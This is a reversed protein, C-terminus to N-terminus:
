KSIRRFKKRHLLLLYAPHHIKSFKLKNLKFALGKHWVSDFAKEIDFLILGTSQKRFKCEKINNVVRAIQHTTSHQQRFGFQEANIINRDNTFEILRALVTKEFLKGIASLLSIPRYSSVQNKDKGSKPIPIVKASKFTSPWHSWHLCANFLITLYDIAEAPLNKLLINQIGDNGPAKFPRLLRITSTLEDITIPKFHPNSAKSRTLNNIFLNM